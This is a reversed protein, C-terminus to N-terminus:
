KGRNDVNFSIKEGNPKIAVLLYNKQNYIGTGNCAPCIVELTNDAVWSGDKTPIFCKCKTCNKRISNDIIEVNKM